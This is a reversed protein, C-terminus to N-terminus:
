QALLKPVRGPLGAVPRSGGGGSGAGEETMLNDFTGASQVGERTNDAGDEMFASGHSLVTELIEYEGVDEGNFRDSTYLHIFRDEL